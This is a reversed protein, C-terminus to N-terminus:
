FLMQFHWPILSVEHEKYIIVAKSIAKTNKKNTLFLLSVFLFPSFLLMIHFFFNDLFQVL